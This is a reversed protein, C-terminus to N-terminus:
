SGDSRGVSRPTRIRQALIANDPEELLLRVAYNIVYGMSVAPQHDEALSRIRQHDGPDLPVSLRVPDGATKKQDRKKAGVRCWGAGALM